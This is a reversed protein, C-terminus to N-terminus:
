PESGTECRQCNGIELVLERSGGDASVRGGLMSLIARVGAAEGGLNVDSDDIGVLNQFRVVAGDASPEAVIMVTRTGDVRLLAVNLCAGILDELLFPSTIVSVSDAVGATDIVVEAQAAKRRYLEAVLGILSGLDTTIGSADVSHALRNLAGVIQNAQRIQDIIKGAQVDLRDPDISRGSKMVQAIDQVLGAKENIVALKNRIEHSVSASMEGFFRLGEGSVSRWDEANKTTM